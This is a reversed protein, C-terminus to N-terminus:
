IYHYYSLKINYHLFGILLSVLQYVSSSLVKTHRGQLRSTQEHARIQFSVEILTYLMNLWSTTKNYWHAVLVCTSYIESM